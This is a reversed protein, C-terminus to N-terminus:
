LNTIGSTELYVDPIDKGRAVELLRKMTRGVEENADAALVANREVSFTATVFEAALASHPVCM